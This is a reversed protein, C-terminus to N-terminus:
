HWMTGNCIGVTNDSLGTKYLKLIAKMYIHQAKVIDYQVIVTGERVMMGLKGDCIETTGM